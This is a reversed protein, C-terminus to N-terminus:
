IFLYIQAFILCSWSFKFQLLHKLSIFHISMDLTRHTRFVSCYFACISLCLSPHGMICVTTSLLTGSHLEPTIIIGKHSINVDSHREEFHHANLHVWAATVDHPLTPSFAGRLSQTMKETFCFNFTNLFTIMTKTVIVYIIFWTHFIDLTKM